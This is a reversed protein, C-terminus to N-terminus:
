IVTIQTKVSTTWRGNSVSHDLGTIIFGVRGRYKEPLFFENVKFAQGIKMGSIGKMTFSLEFPILGPDNLNREDTVKKLYEAMLQSHAEKYGNFTEKDYGIYFNNDAVTIKNIFDLYAQKNDETVKTTDKKANQNLAINKVPLHRDVLGANWKQINLTKGAGSPNPSNQAAIAIMSTLKESLKSSINLNEVESKLGVLDIYSKPKNDTGREYDNKSPIVDRDVIYYINEEEEYNIGFSNVNGLNNQIGTIVEKVLNYITDDLTDKAGKVKEICERLYNVSVLINLTEDEELDTVQKSFPIIFENTDSQKPLICVYPDLGIHERFTTFPTPRKGGTYFEVVNVGDEDKMLSGRNVLELFNRLPIYKMWQSTRSNSDGGLNGVAIRFNTMAGKYDPAAFDVATLTVDIPSTDSGPELFFKESPALLISELALDLGSAFSSANYKVDQSGDKSNRKGAFTSRISNIIEGKSVVEVLCEYTYGNYSWSFNKIFGYLADYNNYNAKKLTNIDNQIDKSSLPSLFKKKNFYKVNTSINGEDDLIISHGWEVLITFGPRLYLKELISFQEPSHVTFAFSVDRLTGFEGKSKVSFQTIGPIPTYGYTSSGVYSSNEYEPNFGQTAGEVGSFLTYKDALYSGGEEPLNVASTVRVWGNNSNLYIIDDSSRSTRKSIINKRQEIQNLVTDDLPGGIVGGVKFSLSM